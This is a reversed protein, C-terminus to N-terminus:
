ISSFYEWKLEKCINKWIKEQEFLKERSKLLPFYILLDHRDLLQCFKHLTFSYSLFNKRTPPCHLEFPAQIKDFMSMLKEELENDIVLSRQKTINQIINPIHEYYKNLRLKKLYTRIRTYTIDKIDNIREKKLELYLLELIDNPINTSEKAQLQILWEKFHNIRKYTFIQIIESSDARSWDFKNNTEENYTECVGCDSCIITAEKTDIIRNVSSCSKCSNNTQYKNNQIKFCSELYEAYKTGKQTKGNVDMYQLIGGKDVNSDSCEGNSDIESIYPLANFLYESLDRQYYINDLEKKKCIITEKLRSSLEFNKNLKAKEYAIEAQELEEKIKDYTAYYKQYKDIEEEHINEISSRSDKHIAKNSIKFTNM